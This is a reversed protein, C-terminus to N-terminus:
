DVNTSFPKGYSRCAHRSYSRCQINSTNLCVLRVWVAFLQGVVQVEPYASVARLNIATTKTTIKCTQPDHKDKEILPM